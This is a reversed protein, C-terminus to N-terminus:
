TVFVFFSSTKRLILMYFRKLMQEILIWCKFCEEMEGIISITIVPGACRANCFFNVITHIGTIIHIYPPIDSSTITKQIFAAIYSFTAICHSMISFPPTRSIIFNWTCCFGVVPTYTVAYLLPVFSTSTIIFWFVAVM